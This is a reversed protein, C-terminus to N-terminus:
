ANNPKPYDQGLDEKPKEGRMGFSNGKSNSYSNNEIKIKDKTGGAVITYKGKSIQPCSILISNYKKVAVTSIISKSNQLLEITDDKAGETDLNYLISGQTSSNSFGEAMGSMGIAIISGGTITAGTQYDFASNGNNEAGYVVTQGGTIKIIGNSDLGDGDANVTINGGSITLSCDTSGEGMQGFGGKEMDVPPEINENGNNGQPASPPEKMEGNNNNPMEPPAQQDNEPPAPPTNETQNVQSDSDNNEQSKDSANFGDDSSVINIDGGAVDIFRGEIGEKSSQIDITGDCIKIASSAQIGDSEANITISGSEIYVYGKTVEDNECHIADKTANLNFSANAIRVSDNAKITHKEATFDYDGSTIMLDDNSVVANGYKANVTLKKSGNLTLNSKSYIVGNIKEDDNVFDNKNSLTSDGVTTVFLKKANKCYIAASTNCNINVSNLVLQIKDSDDADIIIQGNSLSGSLIYVGETKITIINNKIDVNFSDSTSKNDKLTIKYVDRDSYDFNLDRDTFMDASSIIDDASYSVTIEDDPQINNDNLVSCGCLVIALILIIPLFKCKRM